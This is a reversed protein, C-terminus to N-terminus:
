PQATENARKPRSRFNPLVQRAGFLKITQWGSFFIGLVRFFYKLIRCEAFVTCLPQVTIYPDWGCRRCVVSTGTSDVSSAMANRYIGNQIQFMHMVLSVWRALMLADAGSPDCCALDVEAGAASLFAMLPEQLGARALKHLVTCGFADAANVGSGNAGAAWRLM